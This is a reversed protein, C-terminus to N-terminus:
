SAVPAAQLEKIREIHIREANALHTFTRRLAPIPTRQALQQYFQMTAQEHELAHQLIPRDSGAVDQLLEINSPLDSPHIQDVRTNAHDQGIDQMLRLHEREDAELELLLSRLGPDTTENALAAYDAASAEEFEAAIRLIARMMMGVPAPTEQPTPTEAPKRQLVGALLVLGFGIFLTAALLRIVQEPIFRAIFRGLTVALLTSLLLAAAAALFVTWKGSDSGAARAMATLQTKDGLEALFILVFTSIFLRADM